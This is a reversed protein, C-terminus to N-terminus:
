RLGLSKLRVEAAASSVFFRTAIREADGQNREAEETFLESPMLFAAAFWNAEWEVRGSGYREARIRQKGGQSHLFYHGLEHAITFQDRVAGTVASLSIEFDGPGHVVLSGDAEHQRSEDLSLYKLRGGLQAVVSEVGTGPTYGVSEAVAEAYEQVAQRSANCPQPIPLASM